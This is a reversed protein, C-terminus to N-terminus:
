MPGEDGSVEVVVVTGWSTERGGIQGGESGNEWPRWPTRESTHIM